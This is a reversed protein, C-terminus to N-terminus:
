PKNTFQGNFKPIILVHETSVYSSVLTVRRGQNDTFTKM